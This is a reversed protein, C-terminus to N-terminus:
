ADSDPVGESDTALSSARAGPESSGLLRVKAKGLEKRYQPLTLPREPHRRQWRRWQERYSLGSHDVWHTLLERSKRDLQSKRQIGFTEERARSFASAVDRPSALPGRVEITIRSDLAEDGLVITRTMMHFSEPLRGTLVYREVDDPQADLQEALRHCLSVLGHLVGSPDLELTRDLRFITHKGGISNAREERSSDWTDIIWRDAEQQQPFPPDTGDFHLTRWALIEEDIHSHKRLLMHARLQGASLPPHPSDSRADRHLRYRRVLDIFDDVDRPTPAVLLSSWYPGLDDVESVSLSGVADEVLDLAEAEPLVHDRDQSEAQNPLGCGEAIRPTKM